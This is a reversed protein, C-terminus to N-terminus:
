HFDPYVTQVKWKLVKVKVYVVKQDKDWVGPVTENFVYDFKYINGAEPKVVTGGVKDKFNATVVFSEKAASEAKQTEVWVRINAIEVNPFFNYAFTACGEKSDQAGSKGVYKTSNSDSLTSPTLKIGDPNGIIDYAWEWTEQGSSACFKYGGEPVEESFNPDVILGKANSVTRTTMQNSYNNRLTATNYYDVMGIGKVTVSTYLHETATGATGGEKNFECGLSTIEVRSIIPKIEVEAEYVDFDEDGSAKVGQKVKMAGDGYLTVCAKTTKDTGEGAANQSSLPINFSMVNSIPQGKVVVNEITTTKELNVYNGLVMVKDAKHGVLFRYGSAATSGDNYVLNSWPSQADNVEAGDKKLKEDSSVTYVDTINGGEQYFIVAVDSVNVTANVGETPTDTSRGIAAPASIGELKMYVAKPAGNEGTGGLPEDSSCAFLTMFALAALSLQKLNM